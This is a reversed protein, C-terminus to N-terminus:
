NEISLSVEIWWIKTLPSGKIMTRKAQWNIFYKDRFTESVKTFRQWKFRLPLKLTIFQAVLRWFANGWQLSIPLNRRELITEVNREYWPVRVFMRTCSLLGSTTSAYTESGTSTGDMYVDLFKQLEISPDLGISLIAIWTSTPGTSSSHSGSSSM